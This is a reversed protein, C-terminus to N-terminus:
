PVAVGRPWIKTKNQGGYAMQCFLGAVNCRRRWLKKGVEKERHIIRKRLPSCKTKIEGIVTVSMHGRCVCVGGASKVKHRALNSLTTCYNM